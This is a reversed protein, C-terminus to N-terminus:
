LLKLTLKHKVLELYLVFTVNETNREGKESIRYYSTILYVVLEVHDNYCRINSINSPSRKSRMCTSIHSSWFASGAKMKMKMPRDEGRKGIWVGATGRRGGQVHSGRERRGSKSRSERVKWGDRRQGEDGEARGPETWDPPAASTQLIGLIDQNWTIPSEKGVM